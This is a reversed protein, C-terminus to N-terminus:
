STRVHIARRGDWRWLDSNTLHVGGLWFDVENEAIFDSENRLVDMGLETLEFNTKDFASGDRPDDASNIRLLPKPADALRKLDNLFQLDGYGYLPEANGFATFLPILDSAGSSILRLAVNEIHGLGNHSSPFRILHKELTCQLFPLSSTDGRVLEEIAHPTPSCYATWAKAGLKSEQESVDHRQSLLSGAEEPSLEGLGRFNEKGPFRDICILSLKTSGMSRNAFWDLLYILITQCFLDHEFWLVVETHDRFRYLVEEQRELERACEAIPKDYAEALHSARLSRWTEGGVGQPTPGAILAERWVLLEGKLQAARLLTATSDGNLIHLM